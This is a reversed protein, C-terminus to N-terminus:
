VGRTLGAVKGDGANGQMRLWVGPVISFENLFMPVILMASVLSLSFPTASEFFGRILMAFVFSSALPSSSTWLFGLMLVLFGILTVWGGEVLVKLYTSHPSIKEGYYDRLALKSMGLGVGEPQEEVIELSYVFLEDRHSLGRDRKDSFTNAQITEMLKFRDNTILTYYGVAAVAFALIFLKRFTTHLVWRQGIYLLAFILMAGLMSRSEGIFILVLFVALVGLQGLLQRRFLLMGFYMTSFVVASYNNPNGYISVVRHGLGLPVLTICLGFFIVALHANTLEIKQFGPYLFFNLIGFAVYAYSLMDGYLFSPVASGVIVLASGINYWWSTTLFVKRGTLFILATVGVVIVYRFVYLDILHAIAMGFFCITM